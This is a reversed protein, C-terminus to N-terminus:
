RRVIKATKASTLGSEKQNQFTNLATFACKWFALAYLVLVVHTSVSLFILWVCKGVSVSALQLAFPDLISFINTKPYIKPLEHGYVECKPVFPGIQFNMQPGFPGFYKKPSNKTLVFWFVVKSQVSSKSNVDFCDLFTCLGM